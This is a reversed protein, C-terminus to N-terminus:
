KLTEIVVIVVNVVNGAQPYALTVLTLPLGQVVGGGGGRGRAM